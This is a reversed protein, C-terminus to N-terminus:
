RLAMRIQLREVHAWYTRFFQVHEDCHLFHFDDSAYVEWLPPNPCHGAREGQRPILVDCRDTVRLTM